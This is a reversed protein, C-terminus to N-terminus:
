DHYGRAYASLEALTKQSGTGGVGNEDRHCSYCAFDLTVFGHAYEPSTAAVEDLEGRHSATVADTYFMAAKGVPNTNIRFIHTAVDGQYQTPALASRTAQAMHCDECSARNGHASNRAQTSHCGQCNRTIGESSYLSGKHHHHCDLCSLARHGASRMEEFQEHHQIFGEKAPIRQKAADRYHCQGCAEATRDIRIDSVNGTSAHRGGPGHCAECQIGPESFTGYMGALGDQHPGAAGTAVWGTTHCAGCDYPKTGPPVTAEYPGFASTALNYQVADGTVIYGNRDVYRAKWGYGGIVYTIDNWSYGAPTLPVTSFPFVPPLGGTIKVLKYPHGAARHDDMEARHCIGCVAAGVYGDDPGPPAIAAHGGCGAVIAMAGLASLLVALGVVLGRHM